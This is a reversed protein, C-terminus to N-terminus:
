LVPTKKRDLDDDPGGSLQTSFTIVDSSLVPSTDSQGMILAAARQNANPSSSYNYILRETLLCHVGAPYINNLVTRFAPYIRRRNEKDLGGDDYFSSNSPIM